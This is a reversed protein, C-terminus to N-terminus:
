AIVAEAEWVREDIVAHEAPTLTLLRIKVTEVDVHLEEALEQEDQSWRLADILADLGILRRASRVCAAIEQRTALVPSLSEPVEDGHRLHELEHALTCRMQRQTQRKHLFITRTRPDSWGLTDDGLEAVRITVDPMAALEEWPSYAM